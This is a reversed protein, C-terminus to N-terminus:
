IGLSLASVVLAMQPRNAPAYQPSLPIGTSHNSPSALRSTISDIRALRTPSAFM